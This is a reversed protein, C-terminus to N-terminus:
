RDEPKRPRALTMLPGYGFNKVELQLMRREHDDFKEDDDEAHEKLAARFSKEISNFKGNLWTVASIVTLTWTFVGVILATVLSFVFEPSYM